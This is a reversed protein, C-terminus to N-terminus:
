DAHAHCAAGEQTRSEDAAPVTRTSPEVLDRVAMADADALPAHLREPCPALALYAPLGHHHAAGLV